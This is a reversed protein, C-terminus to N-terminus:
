RYICAMPVGETVICVLKMVICITEAYSEMVNQISQTTTEVRECVKGIQNSGGNQLWKRLKKKKKEM